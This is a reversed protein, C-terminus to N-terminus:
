PQGSSWLQAGGAALLVVNCDREIVLFAGPNGGTGTSWRAVGAADYVVFNGDTQMRASGGAAAGGTQSAWYAVNEHYAVLNGDRQFELRCAAGEVRISQRSLLRQGGVLWNRDSSTADAASLKFMGWKGPSDCDARVLGGGGEEACVYHGSVVQLTAFDLNRLSGGGGHRRAVFHAWPTAQPDTADLTSGGGEAARLFFGDSTHLAVVDGSEVCGGNTDVLTFEGWRGLHSGVALVDGGGNGAAVVYQGNSAQLRIRMGDRLCPAVRFNAVTVRNENLARVANAPGAISPSPRTGAVGMPAGRWSRNPNSFGLPEGSWDWDDGFLDYCTNSGGMITRWCTSADPDTLMNAYGVAYPVPLKQLAAGGIDHRDHDLGMGHGLEHLFVRTGYDYGTVSFALREDLSTNLIAAAPWWSNADIRLDAVLVVFDAAYRDRLRHVNDMHGDHPARLRELMEDCDRSHEERYNVQAIHVVSLRQIVGSEAYAQNAEVAWLDIQAELQRPGGSKEQAAPTYVVLVDVLSGDDRGGPAFQQSLPTSARDTRPPAATASPEVAPLAPTRIPALPALPAPVPRPLAPPPVADNALRPIVNLDVQRIAHVGDGVWRIAYTAGPARVTGAVIQGNVVLTVSALDNDAFHGTLWYGASTPGTDTVVVQFMADDFLNLRLARAVETGLQVRARDLGEIDISVFRQRLVTQPVEM